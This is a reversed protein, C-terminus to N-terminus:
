DRMSCGGTAIHPGPCEGKDKAGRRSRAVSGRLCDRLDILIKALFNHVMPLLEYPLFAAPGARIEQWGEASIPGSFSAPGYAEQHQRAQRAQRPHWAGDHRPRLAGTGQFESPPLWLKVRTDAKCWVVGNQDLRTCVGCVRM